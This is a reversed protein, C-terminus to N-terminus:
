WRPPPSAGHHTKRYAEIVLAAAGATLPSSPEDWRSEEVNSPAGVFDTCGAYAPSAECASFGLDGPAVLHHNRRDRQLRQLQALQHQREAMGDDRLLARRRLQDACLLPFRHLRGRSSM